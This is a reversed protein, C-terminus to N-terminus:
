ESFWRWVAAQEGFWGVYWASFARFTWFLYLFDDSSGNFRRIFTRLVTLVNFLHM